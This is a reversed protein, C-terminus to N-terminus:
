LICENHKNYFNQMYMTILKGHKLGISKLRETIDEIMEDEKLYEIGTYGGEKIIYEIFRYCSIM